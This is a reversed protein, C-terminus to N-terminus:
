PHDAGAEMLLGARALAKELSALLRQFDVDCTCDRALMVIDADARVRDALRRYAERLRRRARNRRVATGIRRGAVFAVRPGDGDDRRLSGVAVEPWRQWQGSQFVRDLDSQRRLTVLGRM